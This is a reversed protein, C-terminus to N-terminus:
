SRKPVTCRIAAHKRGGGDLYIIRGGGDLYTVHRLM